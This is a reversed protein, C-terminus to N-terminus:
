ESSCKLCPTYGHRRLVDENKVKLELRNKESMRSVYICDEDLHYKGSNKNIVVFIMIEDGSTGSGSASQTERPIVFDTRAGCSCLFLICIFFCLIRKM